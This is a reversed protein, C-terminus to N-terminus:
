PAIILPYTLHHSQVLSSSASLRFPASLAPLFTSSVPPLFRYGGAIRTPPPQRYSEPLHSATRTRPTSETDRVAAPLQRRSGSRCGSSLRMAIICQRLMSRRRVARATTLMSIRTLPTLSLLKGNLNEVRVTDTLWCPPTIRSSDGNGTPCRNSSTFSNLLRLAVQRTTETRNPFSPFSCPANSSCQGSPFKQLM